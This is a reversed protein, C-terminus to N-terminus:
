CAMNKERMDYPRPRRRRRVFFVVGAILVFLFAISAAIIGVVNWFM